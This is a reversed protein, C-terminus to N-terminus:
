EKIAENEHLCLEFMNLWHHCVNLGSIRSFSADYSCAKNWVKKKNKWLSDSRTRKCMNHLLFIYYRELYCALYTRNIERRLPM